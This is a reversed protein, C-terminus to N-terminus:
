NSDTATVLKEPALRKLTAEAAKIRSVDGHPEDEIEETVDTTTLL